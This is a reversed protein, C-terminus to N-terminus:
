RGPYILPPEDFPRISPIPRGGEAIWGGPQITGLVRVPWWNMGDVCVAGGTIALPVGSVLTYLVNSEYNPADRLNKPPGSRYYVRVRDGTSLSLPPFCLEPTEEVFFAVDTGREAEAMWGTYRAGLVDVQVRRWNYGDTCTPETLILVEAGLPAVTLVRGDLSPNERIRVNDTLDIREGVVLDRPTSCVVPVPNEFGRIYVIENDREAVWGSLGSSAVGWWIYNDACVPGGTVVFARDQLLYELLPSSVTPNLRISVGSRVTVTADVVLPLSVGCGPARSTPFPLSTSIPEGPAVEATLDATPLETPGGIPPLEITPAPTVTVLETLPLQAAQPDPAEATVMMIILGFAALLFLLSAFVKLRM